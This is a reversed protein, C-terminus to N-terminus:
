TAEPPVTIAFRTTTGQWSLRLILGYERDLRRCAKRVETPDKVGVAKALAEFPIAVDFGGGSKCRDWVAKFTRVLLSTEKHRAVVTLLYIAEDLAGQTLRRRIKRGSATEVALRRAAVLSRYAPTM